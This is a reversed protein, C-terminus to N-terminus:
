LPSRGNTQMQQTGASPRAVHLSIHKAMSPIVEKLNGVFAGYLAVEGVEGVVRLSAGVTCSLEEGEDMEDVVRGAEPRVDEREIPCEGRHEHYFFEPVAEFVDAADIDVFLFISRGVCRRRSGSRSDGKSHKSCKDFMKSSYCYNATMKESVGPQHRIDAM